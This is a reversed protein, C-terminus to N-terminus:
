EWKQAFAESMEPTILAEGAALAKQNLEETGAPVHRRVAETLTEPEFLRLARNIAGVAVINATFAKGVTEGSSFTQPLSM